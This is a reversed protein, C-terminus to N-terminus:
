HSKIWTAIDSVVEAAVHGEVLYEANNPAGTGAIFLHNLSPYTKLTVSPNGSFTENWRAFDTMTVQYDRMGQLILLPIHLSQATAVPDYTALDAWYSRPAGLVDESDNIDLNKVKQVLKELAAIQESQNTGSLNALYRTQELMLDEIHRTPAALLILGAIRSDQSAIRPAIMGGLSHGLVFIQSHDVITSTNLVTVAAIADDIIEDQVTFNMMATFEEPYQKTRKEYRLVVIGMSALGWAIDKFPKNPGLTEDRDNPGSGHVLVVAPFPDAGNPITITGPLKWQGSVITINEETFANIDVYSPPSYAFAEQTPVVLLSIVKQQANFIIKVDLVPVKSFNCTVYVVSNGSENTVRAKILRIPTGYPTNIQQEWLSAFDDVTIQSTISTNFYTYVGTYNQDMLDTVIEVAADVLPNEQPQQEQQQQVCGSLLAGALIVVIIFSALHKM